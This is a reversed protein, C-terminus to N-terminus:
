RVWLKRGNLLNMGKQLSDYRIGNLSYYGDPSSTPAEVPHVASLEEDTASYLALDSITIVDTSEPRSLTLKYEGWGDTVKFLLCAESGAAVTTNLLVTKKGTLKQLKVTILKDADGESKFRLKYNGTTLQLSHYVNQNADTKQESGFMLLIKGTNVKWGHEKPAFGEAELRPRWM